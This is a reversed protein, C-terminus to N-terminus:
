ACINNEPRKPMNALKKLDERFQKDQRMGKSAAELISRVWDPLDPAIRYYVWKGARQDLVIGADRLTALHRSIKPQIVGLAYTLECVCLEGEQLLLALTRLRTPDSFLKLLENPKLNM